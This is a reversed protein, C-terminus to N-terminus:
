TRDHRREKRNRRRPTAVAMLGQEFRDRTYYITREVHGKSSPRMAAAKDVVPVEKPDARQVVRRVTLLSLGTMRVIMVASMAEVHHLYLVQARQQPTVSV